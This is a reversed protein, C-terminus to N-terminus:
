SVVSLSLQSPDESIFRESKRGFMMRRLNRLEDMMKLIVDQLNDREATIKALRSELEAIYEADTLTQKM